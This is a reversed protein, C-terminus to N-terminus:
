LQGNQMQEIYYMAMERIGHRLDWTPQWDLLEKARGIDPRRQRPDDVPMSLFRVRAGKQTVPVHQMPVDASERLHGIVEFIVDVLQRITFEDGNGLNVPLHVDAVTGHTPEVSSPDQRGGDGEINM